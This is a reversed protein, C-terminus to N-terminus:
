IHRRAGCQRAVPNTIDTILDRKDHRFRLFRSRLRGLLDENVIAGQGRDDVAISRKFLARRLYPVASGTIHNKAERFTILRCCVRGERARRM